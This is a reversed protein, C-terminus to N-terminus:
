KRADLWALVDAFVKTRDAQLENHLEHFHGEYVKLTKDASAAKEVFAKSGNAAAIADSGGHVILMPAQMEAARANMRDIAALIEAGWRVTAKRQVLTDMVYARGVATDRSLANPDVENALALKPLVNTLVKAGIIKAKPVKLAPEFPPASLIVGWVTPRRLGAWLAVILAGMSHGYVFVKGQGAHAKVEEYVKALDDVYDDFKDVHVRLGGSKGHGRHDYVYFSWGAETLARELNLYRGGHEGVGHVLLVTGKPADPKVWRLHLDVGGVGQVTKEGRDMQARGSTKVATSM